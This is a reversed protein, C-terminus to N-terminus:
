LLSLRFHSIDINFINNNLIRISVMKLFAEIDRRMYM